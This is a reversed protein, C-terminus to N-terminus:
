EIGLSEKIIGFMSRNTQLASFDYTILKDYYKYTKKTFSGAKYSYIYGPFSTIYRIDDKIFNYLRPDTITIGYKNRLIIENERSVPYVYIINDPIFEEELIPNVPINRIEMMKEFDATIDKENTFDESSCGYSKEPRIKYHELITEYPEPVVKHLQGTNDALGVTTEYASPLSKDHYLEGEKGNPIVINVPESPICPTSAPVPFNKSINNQNDYSEGVEYLHTITAM